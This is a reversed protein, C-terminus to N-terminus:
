LRAAAFALSATAVMAGLNAYLVTRAWEAMRASMEGELRDFRADVREFGASVRIELTELDRKTAVDAWGVPPLHEMLTAAQKRGLVEELRSYLEHRSEENITM